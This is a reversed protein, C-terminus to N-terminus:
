IWLQGPFFICDYFNPFILAVGLKIKNGIMKKAFFRLKGIRLQLIQFIKPFNKM